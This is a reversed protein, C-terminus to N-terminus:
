LGVGPLLVQGIDEKCAVLVQGLTKCVREKEEDLEKKKTNKYKKASLDVQLVGTWSNSQREGQVFMKNNKDGDPSRSISRDPSIGIGIWGDM